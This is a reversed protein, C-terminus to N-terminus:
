SEGGASRKEKMWHTICKAGMEELADLSYGTGSNNLPPEEIGMVEFASQLDDMVDGTHDSLSVGRAISLLLLEASINPNAIRRLVEGSGVYQEFTKGNEVCRFVYVDDKGAVNRIIQGVREGRVFQVIYYKGVEIEEPKM